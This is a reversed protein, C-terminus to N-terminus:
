LRMRGFAPVLENRVCSDYAAATSPKLTRQKLAVWELLYAGVTFQRDEFVGTVEANLFSQLAYVADERSRYGSRRRTRRGEGNSPLDM